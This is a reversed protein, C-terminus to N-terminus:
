ISKNFSIMINFTVHPRPVYMRDKAFSIEILNSLGPKDKTYFIENGSDTVARSIKKKITNNSDLLAIINNLNNDSKSMKKHPNQLSM